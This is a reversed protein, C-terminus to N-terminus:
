CHRFWGAPSLCASDRTVTVMKVQIRVWSLHAVSIVLPGRLRLSSLKLKVLDSYIKETSVNNPGNFRSFTWNRHQFEGELQMREQGTRWSKFRRSHLFFKSYITKSATRFINEPNIVDIELYVNRELNENLVSNKQPWQQAFFFNLM